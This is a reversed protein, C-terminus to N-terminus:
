CSLSSSLKKSIINSFEIMDKSVDHLINEIIPTTAVISITAFLTREDKLIPTAISSIGMGVEEFETSYGTNDIKKLESKLQEVDMITNETFQQFDINEIDYINGYKLLLKGSSTANMPFITDLTTILVYHSNDPNVSDITFINNNSILQLRSGVGYTKTLKELYVRAINKLNDINNKYLFEAKSIYILGLAYVNDEPFHEIYGNLVLTNVIGRTTNINLSLRQSIQNLTLRSNNYDFCNIIDIARQISQIVKVNKKM